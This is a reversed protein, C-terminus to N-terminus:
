RIGINCIELNTISIDAIGIDQKALFSIYTHTLEGTVVPLCIEKFLRQSSYNISDKAIAKASVIIESRM